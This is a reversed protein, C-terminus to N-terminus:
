NRLVVQIGRKILGPHANVWSFAVKGLRVPSTIKKGEVLFTTPQTNYRIWKQIIHFAETNVFKPQQMVKEIEYTKPNQYLQPYSFQVGWTISDASMTMSRFKGDFGSYDLRHPQMLIVPGIIKIIRRADDVPISYLPDSNLTIVSQSVNRFAKEDPIRGEKLANAYESYALNFEDVSILGSEKPVLKDIQFISINQLAALLQEMESPDLLVQLSLWKSLPCIGETALTSERLQM